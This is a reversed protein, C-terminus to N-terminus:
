LSFLMIYDSPLYMSSKFLMLLISMKPSTTLTGHFSSTPQADM